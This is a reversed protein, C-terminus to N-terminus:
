ILKLCLDFKWFVLWLFLHEQLTLKVDLLMGLHKQTTSQTVSINNFHLLLYVSKQLKRSFIVDQAQKSPDPNFNMKWQFAWHNIKNLNENLNQVSSQKNSIVSFLSADNTFLKPKSVLNKPLDNIYILFLLPGLVSGQPVGIEINIWM